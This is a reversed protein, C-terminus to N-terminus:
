FIHHRQNKLLRREVKPTVEREELFREGM